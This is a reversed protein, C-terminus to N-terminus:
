LYNFITLNCLPKRNWVFISIPSFPPWVPLDKASVLIAVPCMWEMKQRDPFPLNGMWSRLEWCWERKTNACRQQASFYRTYDCNNKGAPVKLVNRWAFSHAFVEEVPFHFLLRWLSDFFFSSATFHACYLLHFM